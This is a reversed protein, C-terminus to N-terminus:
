TMHLSRKHQRLMELKCLIVREPVIMIHLHHHSSSRNTAFLSGLTVKASAQSLVARMGDRPEARRFRAESEIVDGTFVDRLYWAFVMEAGIQM